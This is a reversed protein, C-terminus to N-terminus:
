YGKRRRINRNIFVDTLTGHRPKIKKPALEVRDDVIQVTSTVMRDLRVKANNLGETDGMAELIHVATLQALVPHMETPINPVPSEEAFTIYDGQKINVLQDQIDSTNFSITKLSSNVTTPQLDWSLIKNPSKSDVIDYKITSGLSGDTLQFKNPMTVFTFTTIGTNLDNNITKIVGAESTKTLVNPRIYFYVRVYEYSRTPQILKIQNGEIYFKDMGYNSYAEDHDPLESIGIQTLEWVQSSEILSIDMVKNGIARDPINYIGENNAPIDIHTALHGEKISLLKDLLQVDMEENAIALINTDDFTRNDSPVMARNRVSEILKDGTLIRSM